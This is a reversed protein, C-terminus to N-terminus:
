GPDGIGAARSSRLTVLLNQRPPPELVRGAAENRNFVFDYSEKVLM